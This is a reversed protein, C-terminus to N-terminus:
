DRDRRCPNWRTLEGGGRASCWKQPESCWRSCWRHHHEGADRASSGARHERAARRCHGDLLVRAHPRHSPGLHKQDRAVGGKRRAGPRQVDQAPRSPHIAASPRHTRLRACVAQLVHESRFRGNEAPFLLESRRQEETVFQTREHWRLVEIVDAPVNIRQRLDTKTTNMVEDGLTHSRRVHIAGGDWLVDPTAGRRRLPRMSSPRLGTAMGLYTMAYHQPYEELMCALFQNAQEPSLTNPEEATYTEHESTDFNDIGETPESPLQFKKRAAKMIVRLVVLWGNATVPSYRGSAILRRATGRMRTTSSSWSMLFSTISDNRFAPCSTRSASCPRLQNSVM